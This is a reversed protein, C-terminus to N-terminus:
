KSNINTNNKLLFSSLLCIGAAQWFTITKLGFLVPMLWNWLWMVPLAFFLGYLLGILLCFLALVIIQM